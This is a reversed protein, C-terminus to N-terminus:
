QATEKIVIYYDSTAWSGSTGTITLVDGALLILKQSSSSSKDNMVVASTANTITSLTAVTYTDAGNAPVVTLVPTNASTATYSFLVPETVFGNRATFTVVNTTPTSLSAARYTVKEVTDAAYASVGFIAIIAITILKKM